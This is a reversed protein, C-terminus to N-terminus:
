STIRRPRPAVVARLREAVKASSRPCNAEGPTGGPRRLTSRFPVHHFLMRLSRRPCRPVFQQEAGDVLLDIPRQGSLSRNRAHIWIDVGEPTYVDRLAQVIYHIELLRDGKGAVWVPPAPRQVPRPLCRADVAAHTRGAFTFPGGGSLGKVVQVAEALQALRVGPRGFPIGANRPRIGSACTHCNTAYTRLM